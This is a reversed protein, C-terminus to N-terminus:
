ILSGQAQHRASATAQDTSSKSKADPMFVGAGEHALLWTKRHLGGAYGTLSGDSGLVRHCPIIVGLPNRGVAMGVARVAAPNSIQRAIEGYSSLHGHGIRLLAQWVSQQFETGGSIDLPMDFQQRKGSFFENLQRTAQQLVPHADDRLWPHPVNKFDLSEPRHRQDTFWAGALGQRTAGLVMDGLPSSIQTQVISADFKM